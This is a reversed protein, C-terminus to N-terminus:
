RVYGASDEKWTVRWSDGCRCRPEHMRCRGGQTTRRARGGTRRPLLHEVVPHLGASPPVPLRLPVEPEDARIRADVLQGPHRVPPPPRVPLHVPQRAGTSETGLVLGAGGAAAAVLRHAHPGPGLVGPPGRGGLGRRAEPTGAPTAAVFTCPLRSHRAAPEKEKRTVKSPARLSRYKTICSPFQVSGGFWSTAGRLPVSQTHLSHGVPPHLQGDSKHRAYM